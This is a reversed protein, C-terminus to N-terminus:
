ITRFRQRSRDLHCLICDAARHSPGVPPRCEPRGHKPDIRKHTTTVRRSIKRATRDIWGRGPDVAALGQSEASQPFVDSARLMATPHILLDRPIEKYAMVPLEPLAREVGLRIARRLSGDTLLAVEHGAAVAKQWQESLMGIFRELQAPQLSLNGDHIADRMSMELRPELVMVRVRGEDDRFPDCIDRGLDERVREALDLPDKLLPGHNAIAELIRTMNTIPVRERLLAVLVQHLTGMRMVDPKLEDFVAPATERLRDILKQLDQRSLLEHAYRRLIEGLHTILM